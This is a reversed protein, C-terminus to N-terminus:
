GCIPKCRPTEGTWSGNALCTRTGRGILDYLSGCSYVITSNYTYSKGSVWGGLPTQPKGGSRVARGLLKDDVEDEVSRKHRSDMAREFFGQWQSTSVVSVVKDFTKRNWQEKSLHKLEAQAKDVIKLDQLQMLQDQTHSTTATYVIVFLIIGFLALGTRILVEINQSCKGPM